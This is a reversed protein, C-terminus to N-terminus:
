EVTRPTNAFLWNDGTRGLVATAPNLERLADLREANGSLLYARTKGRWLDRFEGEPLFTGKSEPYRSGYVLDGDHGQYVRTRQRTYFDLSAHNEYKGEVLVPEGPRREENLVRALRAISRHAEFLLFGNQLTGLGAVMGTLLCAMAVRPRRSFWAWSSAATGAIILAVVTYFLPVLDAFSPVVYVRATRLIGDHPEASPGAHPFMNYFSAHELRPFFYAAPVLCLAFVILAIWTPLLHGARIHERQTSAESDWLRGVCLALAPLAPLAYYELRSSSLCFFGIVSGAWLVVLLYGREERTAPRINPRFRHLASPLFVSWPCFWVATMILYTTVPLTQFDMPQRGGLFRRLHENVFYFWLFGPNRAAVLAHWPVTILVFLAGGRVLQLRRFLRWDRTLLFYAGISLAPFVVGILGKAMVAGAMAVWGGLVAAPKDADALLGRSFGWFAASLLATLLMDPLMIRGFVFYGFSTALIAGSALGAQRGWLDRGIGYVAGIGAVAALATALRASFESPGFLGLSLANLWYLLPPKEFYRIFNFHPTIWDHLVLMERPIEAYTGESPDFLGVQGLRALYLAAAGLVLIAPAWRPPNGPGPVPGNM